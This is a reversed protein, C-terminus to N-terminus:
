ILIDYNTELYTSAVNSYSKSLQVSRQLKGVSKLLSRHNSDMDLVV